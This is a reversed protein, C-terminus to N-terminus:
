VEEAVVWLATLYKGFNMLVNLFLLIQQRFSLHKKRNNIFLIKLRNQILIVSEMLQVM